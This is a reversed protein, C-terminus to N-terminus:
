GSSVALGSPESAAYFVARAKGGDVRSFPVGGDEVGTGWVWVNWGDYAQDRREYEIEVTTLGQKKQTQDEYLVM